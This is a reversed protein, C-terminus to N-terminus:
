QLSPRFGNLANTKERFVRRDLRLSASMEIQSAGMINLRKLIEKLTRIVTHFALLRLTSAGPAQCATWMDLAFATTARISSAPGCGCYFFPASQVRESADFFIARNM